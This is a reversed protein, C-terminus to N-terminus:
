ERMDRSLIRGKAARSLTIRKELRDKLESLSAIQANVEELKREYVALLGECVNHGPPREHEQKCNVIKAIHDTNLRFALYFQVAKVRDIQVPDFDRYGNELRKSSILGKHEYHRLSRESAGTLAALESIRM